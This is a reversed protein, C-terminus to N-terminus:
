YSYLNTLEVEVEHVCILLPKIMTQIRLAIKIGIARKQAVNKEGKKIYM